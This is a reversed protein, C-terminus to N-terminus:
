QLLKAVLFALASILITSGFPLCFIQGFLKFRLDGPLRWIGLKQLGPLLAPFIVLASFIVLIWRIM